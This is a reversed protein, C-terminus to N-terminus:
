KKSIVYDYLAKISKFDNSLIKVDISVEYNDEIMMQIAVATLSDWHELNAYDTDPTIELGSVGLQDTFNDIFEEM